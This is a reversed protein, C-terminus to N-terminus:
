AAGGFVRELFKIAEGSQVQQPTFRYVDWGLRTAENYKELDKVYGSGRTHRGNAWVAGEIEVAVNKGNAGYALDFRWLRKDHFRWERVWTMNLFAKLQFALTDVASGQEPRTKRAV